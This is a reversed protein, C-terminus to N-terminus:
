EMNTCRMPKTVGPCIGLLSDFLPKKLGTGILHYPHKLSLKNLTKM